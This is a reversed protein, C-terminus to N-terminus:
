VEQGPVRARTGKIPVSVLRENRAALFCEPSHSIVSSRGPARFFGAFPAPSRAWVTAFTALDAHAVPLLQGSFPLALNAQYCDGAAIWARIREVKTRHESVDWAPTLAQQLQARALAPAPIALRQTMA